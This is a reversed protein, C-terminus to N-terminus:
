HRSQRKAIVAVKRADLPHHKPNITRLRRGDNKTHRRTNAAAVFVSGLRNSNSRKRRDRNALVAKLKEGRPKGENSAILAELIQDVPDIGIMEALLAQYEVPCPARGSAWDSVQQPSACIAKGVNTYSGVIPTAVEILEKAHM